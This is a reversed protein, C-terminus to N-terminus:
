KTILAKMGSADQIIVDDDDEHRKMLINKFLM